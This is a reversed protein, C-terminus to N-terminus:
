LFFRSCILNLMKSVSSFKFFGVLKKNIIYITRLIMSIEIHIFITKVYLYIEIKFLSVYSDIAITHHGHVHIIVFRHCQLVQLVSGNSKQVAIRSRQEQVVLVNSQFRGLQVM